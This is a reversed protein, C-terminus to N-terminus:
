PCDGAFEKEVPEEITVDQHGVVKRGKTPGQLASVMQLNEFAVRRVSATVTDGPTVGTAELNLRGMSATVTLVCWREEEAQDSPILPSAQKVVSGTTPVVQTEVETPSTAQGTPPDKPTETDYKTLLVTTEGGLLTEALGSLTDKVDVKAPMM